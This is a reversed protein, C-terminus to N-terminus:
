FPRFPADPATFREVVVPAGMREATQARWEGWSKMGYVGAAVVVPVGAPAVWLRWRRESM